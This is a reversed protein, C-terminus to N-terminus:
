DKIARGNLYEALQAAAGRLAEAMRRRERGNFRESPAVVTLVAKLSSDRELVPASVACVGLDQEEVDYALGEAKEGAMREIITEPETMTNPTLAPQHKGLIRRQEAVPLYALHMRFSSTSATKQVRGIPLLLRFPHRSFVQDVVVAGGPGMVTLEVTEGTAESLRELYPHAARVFGMYSMALYSPPIMAKGLHYREAQADHVLFDTAELTRVMRYATTKSMGTRSCINNLGWEPHEIDFLALVSLGRALARVFSDSEDDPQRGTNTRPRGGARAM